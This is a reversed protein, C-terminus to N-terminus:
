KWGMLIIRLQRNGCHRVLYEDEDAINVCIDKDGISVTAVRTNWGDYWEIGYFEEADMKLKHHGDADNYSVKITHGRTM